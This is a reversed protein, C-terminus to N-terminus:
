LSKLQSLNGLEPPISGSLNGVGLELTELLSLNGLEPPISGILQNEVAELDTFYWIGMSDECSLDGGCSDYIMQVIESMPEGHDSGLQLTILHSLNGLEAPISGHLRNFALKLAIVHGEECEVGYWNCPTDARLWKTNDAWSAGNTSNYLAILADCETSPIETVITCILDSDSVIVTANDLNEGSVPDTLSITFTEIDEFKNDDIIPITITKDTSDGDAWSLTGTTQTYDSGFIATNDITAYNASVTGNNDGTRIVNITIFGDSETVSYTTLKFQLTATSCSTQTDKWNPNRKNLWEILEPDDATLHNNDLELRSSRNKLEAPIEGCLQNNNLLLWVDRLNALESPITGTLQNNSLDLISRLGSLNGFETPISGTLENDSLDFSWLKNLNGLETPISGTLQNDSLDLQWLDSLNGLQSPISGTLENDYLHLERLNILNGLQSPISGTLENNYLELYMLNSLNGLQSPISGTLQNDDLRLYWLGSMNGFETLISGTLQNANLRLSELKTLNGLQSPISGTLQNSSLSLQSVHGSSCTVGKWGCPTNTELWGSNDAWNAGDTSNYLAVLAECETSPIETVAACDTAAQAVTVSQSILVLVIWLAHFGFHHKNLM